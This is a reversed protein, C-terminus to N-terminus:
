LTFSQGPSLVVPKASTGTQVKASWAEVDQKIVPFTNYHGPIVYEPRLFGVALIADDPGM